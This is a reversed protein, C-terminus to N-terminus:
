RKVRLVERVMACSAIPRISVFPKQASMSAASEAVFGDAATIHARKEAAIDGGDFGGDIGGGFRSAFDAFDDGDLDDRTRV